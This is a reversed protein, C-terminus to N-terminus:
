EAGGGSVLSYLSIQAVCRPPVLRTARRAPTSRAPAPWADNSHSLMRDNHVGDSKAGDDAYRLGPWSGVRFPNKNMRLVRDGEPRGGFRGGSRQPRVFCRDREKVDNGPM